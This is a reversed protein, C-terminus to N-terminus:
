NEMLRSAHRRLLYAGVLFLSLAIALV